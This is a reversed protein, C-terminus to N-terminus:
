LKYGLGANVIGKYGYGLEGYWFLKKNSRIGIPTIHATMKNEDITREPGYGFFCILVPGMNPYYPLGDNYDAGKSHTIGVAGSGYLSLRGQKLTAYIYTAETALCLTSRSNSIDNNIITYDIASPDGYYRTNSFHNRFKYYGGSIGLAFRQNFFYKASINIAPQMSTAVKGYMVDPLPLLLNNAYTGTGATVQWGRTTAHQASVCNSIASVAIVSGFFLHKM